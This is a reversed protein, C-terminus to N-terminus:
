PSAPAGPDEGGLTTFRGMELDLLEGGVGVEEAIGAVSRISGGIDGIGSGIEAIGSTIEASIRALEAMMRGIGASGDDMAKSQGKVRLSHDQLEAMAQLIQKSGVQTESINAFLEGISGVVETIMGEIEVFSRNMAANAVMAEDIRAVISGISEAIDRSSSTSAESLKRIEDAVVAFGKGSDGAHAAEIAANMALLNTQSAINQIVAAMEEIAGVSRLIDGIKTFADEFVSRGTMATEMLRQGSARDKETIRNMNELSSLMETVSATAEEVMSTQGEIEGNLGAINLAIVGISAASEAIRTDLGAIQGGISGTTAEIQAIAGSAEAAAAILRDKTRINAESIEKVKGLASSLGDLFSGLNRDLTGIEDRTAVGARRSLDGERLSAINREIKIINGAIVNAFALALAVTLAVIGLAIIAAVAAARATSAAIEADIVSSQQAIVDRSSVLTDQASTLDAMYSSLHELAAAAGAKQDPKFSSTYLANFSSNNIYADFKFLGKMDERLVDFDGDLTELRRSNLESLNAIVELSAKMEGNVKPLLEIKGLNRFAEDLRLTSDALAAKGVKTKAYPMKNLEILHDRVADILAALYVREKEIRGVRAVLLAYIGVSAGFLMVMGIVLAVLKTRIKM